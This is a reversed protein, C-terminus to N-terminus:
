NKRANFLIMMRTRAQLSDMAPLRGQAYHHLNDVGSSARVDMRM